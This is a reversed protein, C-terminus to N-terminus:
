SDMGPNNGLELLAATEIYGEDRIKRILSSILEKAFQGSPGINRNRPHRTALQLNGVLMQCAMLDFHLPIILDGKTKQEAVCADISAKQRQLKEANM